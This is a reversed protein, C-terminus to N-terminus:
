RHGELILQTIKGCEEVTLDGSNTKGTLETAIRSLDEKSLQNDTATKVLALLDDRTARKPAEVVEKGDNLWDVLSRALESGPKQIVQDSLFSIRSKTVVFRHDADIDGVLDFEYEMGDRQVPSLGIKRPVMKGKENPELVWETKSRMTTVIHCKSGLIADVLKHHEPTVERWAAFSNSARNRAVARDVMELAGDKGMWAHSLSDVVISEFGEAEAAAIAKRYNEPSFSELNLSSFDFEGAYMDASGRESDILAVKGPTMACAIALSSFTKGSGSPGIIALRLKKRKKEAKRFLSM